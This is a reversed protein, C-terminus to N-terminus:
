VHSWGRDALITQGTIAASSESALFLAVNAIEYPQIRRPDCQWTKLNALDEPTLRYQLQKETMVWGPSLLNVRIGHGGLERALGRTLGSLAAKAPMYASLQEEGLHYTISGFNIVSKLSGKKLYVIAPQITYLTSFYNVEFLDTIQDLQTTEFDCREDNAVNNVVVDIKGQDEGCKIVWDKVASKQTMDVNQFHANPFNTALHNGAEDKLDCFFVESGNEAFAKVMAQGIGTAGGTILITKEKLDEYAM